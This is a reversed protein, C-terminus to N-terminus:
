TEHPKTGSHASEDWLRSVARQETDDFNRKFVSEAEAECTGFSFSILKNKNWKEIASNNDEGCRSSIERHLRSHLALRHQRGVSSCASNRYVSVVESDSYGDDSCSLMLQVYIWCSDWQTRILRTTCTTRIYKGSSTRWASSQPHTPFFYLFTPVIKWEQIWEIWESVLVSLPLVRKM